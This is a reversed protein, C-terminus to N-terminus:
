SWNILCFNLGNWCSGIPKKMWPQYTSCSSIVFWWFRYPGKFYMSIFSCCSFRNIIITSNYIYALITQFLPVQLSFSAWFSTRFKFHNVFNNKEPLTNDIGKDTEFFFALKIMNGISIIKICQMHLVSHYSQLMLKSFCCVLM